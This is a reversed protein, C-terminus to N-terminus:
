PLQIHMHITQFSYMALRLLYAGKLFYMNCHAVFTGVAIKVRECCMGDNMQISLVELVQQIIQQVYSSQLFFDLTVQLGSKPSSIYSHEEFIVIRFIVNYLVLHYIHNNEM